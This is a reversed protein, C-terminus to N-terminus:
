FYKFDILFIKTVTCSLIEHYQEKQNRKRSNCIASGKVQSKFAMFAMFFNLHLQCYTDSKVKNGSKNEHITKWVPTWYIEMHLIDSGVEMQFELKTRM